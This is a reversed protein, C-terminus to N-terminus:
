QSAPHDALFANLGAGAEKFRWYDADPSDAAAEPNERCVSICEELARMGSLCRVLDFRVGDITGFDPHDKPM